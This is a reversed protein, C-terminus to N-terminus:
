ASSPMRSESVHSSNLRTSKRDAEYGHDIFVSDYYRYNGFAVNFYYNNNNYDNDKSDRFLSMFEEESFYLEIISKGRNRGSVTAIKVIGDDDSNKVWMPDKENDRFDILAKYLSM